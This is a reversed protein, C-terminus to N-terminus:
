NGQFHIIERLQKMRGRTYQQFRADGTNLYRQYASIDDLATLYLQYTEPKLSDTTQSQVGNFAVTLLVFLSIYRM